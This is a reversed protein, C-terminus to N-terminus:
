ITISIFDSFGLQPISYQISLKFSNRDIQSDDFIIDLIRVAPIYRKAQEIITERLIIMTEMGQNDFLFRKAGVGYTPEMIREGPNTLILMKLHQKALENFNKITTFGDSPDYTLPIKISLSSM